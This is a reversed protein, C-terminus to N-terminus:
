ESNGYWLVKFFSFLNTSTYTVYLLSHIKLTYLKIINECRVVSMFGNSTITSMNMMEWLKLLGRWFGREAGPYQKQDIYM